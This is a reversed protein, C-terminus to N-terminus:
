RRNKQKLKAILQNTDMAPKSNVKAKKPKPESASSTNQRRRREEVVQDMAKTRKFQPASADVAFDPDEFLGQFRPDKTDFESELDREAEKKSRRLTKKAGKRSANETRQGEPHMHLIDDDVAMLELEARNNDKSQETNSEDRHAKAREIRRQRREKEKLKYREITTLNSEPQNESANSTSEPEQIQINASAGELAPNFTIEMGTDSGESPQDGGILAKYKDTTDQTDSDSDSALYARLDLEELDNKNFARQSITARERPTQDWTLKVKSHQLADTSFEQPTYNGPVHSCEDRPTDNFEVDDPIFRLDFYNATSEYETGDVKSYIVSATGVSDCEVVAYYYQLRQLQYRRLKSSSYDQDQKENDSDTAADDDHDFLEKAPGQLDEKQMEQKGYESPYIKVSVIRRGSPVFSSLAAMLDTSTINDWDMNVAALRPTEGGTPVEPGRIKAYEDVQRELEGEIDEQDSEDDSSDSDSSSSIDSMGGGRMAQRKDINYYRGLKEKADEREKHRGYRDISSKSTFREDTELARKFRDDIDSRLAKQKPLKFRPDREVVSFRSEEKESM